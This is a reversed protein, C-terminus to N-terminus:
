LNKYPPKALDTVTEEIKFSEDEFSKEYPSYMKYIPLLNPPKNIIANYIQTTMKEHM